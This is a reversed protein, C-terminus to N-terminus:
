PLETKISDTNFPISPAPVQSIMTVFDWVHCGEDHCIYIPRAEPYNTM